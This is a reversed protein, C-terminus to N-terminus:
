YGRVYKRVFIGALGLTIVIGTKIPLNNSGTNPISVGGAIFYSADDKEGLEDVRVSTVNTEKTLTKINKANDIKARILFKQSHGANLEDITWEVKNDTSNYTGPFFILKLFPPLNDTIKINKLNSDGTNTVQIQFEIVDDQYFVKTSSSINDVYESDHISRLKKDVSIIKQNDDSSYSDAMVFNPKILFGALVGFISLVLGINMKKYEVQKM